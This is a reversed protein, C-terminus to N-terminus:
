LALRLKTLNTGITNFVSGIGSASTVMWFKDLSSACDRLLTSMPDGDTNVHIAYITIGSAKINACTGLVSSEYMRQDVATSTSSGNGNWRNLTNLGDSMLVIAESYSYNADKAPATLPGGGVLSQWGWVLGIPQNTAGLPYLNDVMPKMALWNYNLGMIDPSCYANQEAPFLSAPIGADPATSKRDYDQSPGGATGRDTVCGNWTSRAPTAYPVSGNLALAPTYTESASPRWTHEKYSSNTQCTKSSGSGSCACKSTDTTTCACNSGVCKTWTNYCGNYIIGIKRAIENGSDRGPCILGSYNGSSPIDSVNSSGQAQSVCRFGHSSSSFPCDSNPGISYWSSPKSGGKAPNLVAPEDEWDTWDIWNATHNFSGVNVNKSFPIISVYVDGNTMAASQLQDLLDKTATKLASMKGASAMSGTTDLVLAVRLKINGWASKSTTGISIQNIGMIGMFLTNVSGSVTMTVTSGGVSSYTAGVQVNQAEPRDFAAKFYADAKENLATANLSAAEKSIALATADLAAQMATRVSSARTYDVAAGTLGIVPILTLGFIVAVHGNQSDRFAALRGLIAHLFRTM